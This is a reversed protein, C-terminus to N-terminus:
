SSVCFNYEIVPIHIFLKKRYSTRVLKLYYGSYSCQSFMQYKLYILSSLRCNLNLDLFLALHYYHVMMEWFLNRYRHPLECHLYQTEDSDIFYILAATTLTKSISYSEPYNLNYNWVIIIQFYDTFLIQVM